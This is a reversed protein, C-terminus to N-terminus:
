PGNRARADAVVSWAFISENTSKRIIEAQLRQFARRGEEYLLPMNVAIIGLLSYAIDEERTSIRKSAWGFREAIVIDDLHIDQNRIVDIPIGTADSVLHAVTKDIKTGIHEFNANFFQVETPAILEQLTWARTFWVSSRFEKSEFQTPPLVDYPDFKCVGYVDPLFAFCIESQRYWEFMSNIAETLEASSRKDICCTGIWVWELGQGLALECAKVIKTWGHGHREGNIYTECHDNFTQHSIEEDGWRHSVIAYDPVTKGIFEKFVLDRAHLLRM